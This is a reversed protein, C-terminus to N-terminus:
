HIKLLDAVRERQKTFAKQGHEYAHVIEKRASESLDVGREVIESTLDKMHEVFDSVGDVADDVLETTRRKFKRATRSIDRRTETGSQPAYLLAVGAGIIGGILMAVTVKRLDDGNSM